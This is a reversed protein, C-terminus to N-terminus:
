FEIVLIVSNLNGDLRLKPITKKTTKITIANHGIELPSPIHIQDKTIEKINKINPNILEFINVGNLIIQILNPNNKPLINEGIINPNTKKVM